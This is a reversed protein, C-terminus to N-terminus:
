ILSSKRSQSRKACVDVKTQAEHPISSPHVLQMQMSIWKRWFRTWFGGVLEERSVCVQLKMRLCGGLHEVNWVDYHWGFYGNDSRWHVGISLSPLTSGCGAAKYSNTTESEKLYFIYLHVVAALEKIDYWSPSYERVLLLSEDALRLNQGTVSM